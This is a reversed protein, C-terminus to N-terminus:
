WGLSTGHSLTRGCFDQPWVGLACRYAQLQEGSGSCHRAVGNDMEDRDRAVLRDIATFMAGFINM